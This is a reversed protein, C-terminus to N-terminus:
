NNSDIKMNKYFLYSIIAGVTWGIPIAWWIAVYGFQWSLLYSLGVRVMLDVMTSLTFGIMSGVGRLIGNQILLMSCIFYCPSIINMYGIGVEIFGIGSEGNDFLGILTHGYFYVVIMIIIAYCLMSIVATKYAMKVREPKRAGYNQAAFSSVATGISQIAVKFFSDIKIAAAYGGVVMSGYSNVLAQVMLQGIAVTSFQLISPVAIQIMRKLAKTSFIAYPEDTKIKKVRILLTVISLISASGQAIFTAWAVGKVSLQLEKVFLIDLVINLVSSFILFYLPTKSDGLGNFISNTVNYIFLFLIGYTYIRLYDASQIFIDGPTGLLTIMQNCFLMGVVMMVVALGIITLIATYIATKMEGMQKMGFIQSIVVSCGIGGGMAIAIFLMTIPYSAGVAALASVGDYRGVVISDIMNYLQQFIGSLIIPISFKLLVWSPKGKTMDNAM